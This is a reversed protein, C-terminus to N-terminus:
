HWRACLDPTTAPGAFGCIDAGILTIGFMNMKMIGIVSEEMDIQLAHNDGLWKSGYKGMGAFSSRSIIMPRTGNNKFWMSSSRVQQAGFFSHADLQTYNQAQQVNLNISKTQLSDGTPTYPLKYVVSNSATEVDSQCPGNCFNSAENMDQWLGDFKLSQHFSTLQSSWWSDTNPAFFDPYVAENPWVKGVSLSGDGLKMFVDQQVGSEYANYQENPRASIGADVIPIFHMNM